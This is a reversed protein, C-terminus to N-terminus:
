YKRKIEGIGNLTLAIWFGVNSKRKYSGDDQEEPIKNDYLDIGFGWCDEKYYFGIKKQPYFKDLLSREIYTYIYLSDYPYFYVKGKVSDTTRKYSSKDRIMVYGTSFGENKYNINLSEDSDMFMGKTYDFHEKSSFTIHDFPSLRTDSYIPSFASHGPNRFDYYPSYADKDFDYSQALKNYFIERYYPKNNSNYRGTLSNELVFTLANTKPYTTVFDPFEQSRDPIYTYSLAPIVSHKLGTLGTYNNNLYIKDITTNFSINYEPVIAKKTRNYNEFTNKWHSFIYHLGAKPVVNFYSIKFPYSLFPSSSLEYGRNGSIRFNNTLSNSMGLTLNRYLKKDTIDFKIEPLKQLTTRNNDAILDQYYYGNISLSYENKSLYYAATSKTYRNNSLEMDDNKMVRLNDKNNVLNVDFLLSGYEHFNMNQKANINVRKKKENTGWPSKQEKFLDIEWDGLIDRNWYFRYESTLGYGSKTKIIPTLTIDESDNIDIFCPQEYQFGDNNSYGVSPWLFGSKRKKNIGVYLAPTYLVPYKGVKFLAPYSFIYDNKVIYTKKANITWKPHADKDGGIFKSCRCSTMHANKVYQKDKGNLIIRSARVYIGRNKIFMVANDAFGKYTSINIVSKEAKIWNGAGDELYVNGELDAIHTIKNYSVRDSKLLYKGNVIKCGGKGFYTNIKNYFIINGAKIDVRNNKAYASFALIFFLAFCFFSSKKYIETCRRFYDCCCGILINNKSEQTLNSMKTNQTSNRMASLMASIKNM